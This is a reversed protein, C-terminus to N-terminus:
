GDVTENVLTLALFIDTAFGKTELGKGRRGRTEHFIDTSTDTGDQL